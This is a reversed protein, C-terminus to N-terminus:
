IKLTQMKDPLYVAVERGGIEKVRRAVDIVEDDSANCYKQCWEDSWGAVGGVNHILKQIRVTGDWDRLLSLLKKYGPSELAKLTIERAVPIRAEYRIGAEKLRLVNEVFTKALQSYAFKPMGTISIPLKVDFAVHDANWRNLILEAARSHMLNSNISVKKGRKRAVEVVVGVVHPSMTPEGGTVHVWETPAGMWKEVWKRLQEESEFERCVDSGGLVLAHNHCFPCRLFCGCTWFTTTTLGLVDVNSLEQVERGILFKRM